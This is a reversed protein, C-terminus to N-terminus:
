IMKQGDWLNAEMQLYYSKESSLVLFDNFDEHEIVRYMGRGNKELIGLSFLLSLTNSIVNVTTGTKAALFEKNHKSVLFYGNEDMNELLYCVTHVAFDNNRLSSYKISVVEFLLENKKLKSTVIM